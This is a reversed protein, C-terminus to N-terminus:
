KWGSSASVLSVNSCCCRRLYQSLPCSASFTPWQDPLGLSLQWDSVSCNDHIVRPAHFQLTAIVEVRVFRVVDDWMLETRASNIQLRRSGYWSTVDTICRQLCPAISHIQSPPCSVYTQTDCAYCHHQVDQGLIPTQPLIPSSTTHHQGEGFENKSKPTKVDAFLKPSFRDLFAVTLTCVSASVVLLGALPLNPRGYQGM